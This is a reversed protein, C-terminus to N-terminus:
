KRRIVIKDNQISFRLDQTYELMRFLPELNDYRKLRGSFKMGRLEPTAFEIRINYWRSFILMLEELPMDEFNYYGDKWSTFLQTDVPFYDAMETEKNYAVQTGPKMIFSKDGCQTEVRGKVLTTKIWKVDPYANVNFSTGLVRITVDAAYVIFPHASDPAVEFYAEGELFIERKEGVFQDPYRLTSGANLNVKTGDSLIVNYEAGLPISMTYYEPVREKIENKEIILTKKDTRIEGTSDSIIVTSGKADLLRKEGNPLILEVSPHTNSLESLYARDLTIYEQLPGKQKLMFFCGILVVIGAACSSWLIFQHKRRLQRVRHQIKEFVVDQKQHKDLIERQHELKQIVKGFGRNQASSHEWEGLIRKEEDTLPQKDLFNVLIEDIDKEIM